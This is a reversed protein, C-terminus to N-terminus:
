PISLHEYTEVLVMAELYEQSYIGQSPKPAVRALVQSCLDHLSLHPSSSIIDACAARVHARITQLLENDPHTREALYRRWQGRLLHVKFAPTQEQILRARVEDWIEKYNISHADLLRQVTSRGLGKRAVVEDYTSFHGENTTQRTVQDSLVRYFTSSSVERDPMLYELFEEVKGKTHGKHDLLSLPSVEFFLKPTLPLLCSTGIEHEICEKIQEISSPHINACRILTYEDGKQGNRLLFSYHANSVFRLSQAHDPALVYNSYLKGLISQSSQGKSSKKPKAKALLQQLKWRGDKLTKIQYFDAQQPDDERDLIVVDEHYDCLILYSRNRCHLDLAKYVIWDKQYDLRNYTRSGSVERPPRSVLVDKINKKSTSSM